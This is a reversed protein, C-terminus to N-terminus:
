FGWPNDGKAIMEYGEPKPGLSVLQLKDHISKACNAEPKGKLKQVQNELLNLLYILEWATLKQRNIEISWGKSEVEFLSM